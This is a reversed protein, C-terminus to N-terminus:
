ASVFVTPYLLALTQQDIYKFSLELCDEVRSIAFSINCRYLCRDESFLIQQRVLRIIIYCIYTNYRMALWIQCGSCYPIPEYALGIPPCCSYDKREFSAPFFKRSKKVVYKRVHNEIGAYQLIKPYRFSDWHQCIKNSQRDPVTACNSSHKSRQLTRDSIIDTRSYIKGEIYM